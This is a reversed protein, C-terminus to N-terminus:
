ADAKRAALEAKFDDEKIGLKSCLAVQDPTLTDQAAGEPAVRGSKLIVPAKDIFAKFGEPNRSCYDIAWEKQAPTIKGATIAATVEESATRGANQASLTAVQQQLDDVQKQLKAADGTAEPAPAKLKACLAVTANEDLATFKTVDLGAAEAVRKEFSCMATNGTSLKTVAQVVDDETATDPMGLATRLKAILDMNEEASCLSTMVLAPNNTLAAGAISMVRRTKEDHGLEPSLFRYEKDKVAQGGAPTWTEVHGWLGPEGNPGKTEIRDLWAAAPSKHGALGAAKRTSHDYDIRIPGRKTSLAAVAEPNDLTFPRGDVTTFAGKSVPTLQVWEPPQKDASLELALLAVEITTINRDM